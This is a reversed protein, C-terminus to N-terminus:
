KQTFEVRAFDDWELDTENSKTGEKTRIFVGKNEDNVDNSDRLRFTRGDWLTVQSSRRSDKEISKICEFPIDFEVGRYSGDLIEWTYEEDNDWCISGSYKDGSEDFVTGTIPRGGDFDVYRVVAEAAPPKIELQEFEDWPIIVRGMKRDSVVIGRNGSDIDNSDDLRITQGDKLTLMSAQSSIREIKAIQSFKIKRTRGHESGDIVDTMFLEDMDWCIWGTFEGARSTTVTGYIRDGFNSQGEGGDAFEIYDIDNWDLELEGENKTEVVIERIGSGFDTSGSEFVVKQGGKLLLEVADDGGPTLTKLHGFAIGSQAMSGWGSGESYLTVGFLSVKVDREDDSYKRRTPRKEGETREKNGDLLDDWSAENKDWRIVGELVDGRDTHIKGYIRGKEAMVEPALFLLVVPFLSLMLLRRTM